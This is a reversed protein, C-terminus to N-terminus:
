QQLSASLQWLSTLAPKNMAEKAAMEIQRREDSRASSADAMRSLVKGVAWTDNQKREHLPAALPDLEQQMGPSLWERTVGGAGGVDILVLNGHKDVVMNSPKIDMHTFDQEHLTAVATCLQAGWLRWPPPAAPDGGGEWNHGDKGGEARLTTALTGNLHHELLIGRLVRNTAKSTGTNYPNDSVVAAVLRVINGQGGVRELVHLERQIAKSDQPMYLLREVTKLVYTQTGAAERDKFTVRATSVAIAVEDVVCVDAWEVLRATTMTTSDYPPYRIRLPDECIDAFVVKRDPNFAYGDPLHTYILRVTLRGVVAAATTHQKSHVYVETVTDNLLPLLGFDIAGCLQIVAAKRAALTSAHILEHEVVVRVHWCHHDHRRAVLQLSHGPSGREPRDLYARRPIEISWSARRPCNQQRAPYFNVCDVPLFGLLLGLLRKIGDFMIARNSPNFSASFLTVINSHSFPSLAFIIPM